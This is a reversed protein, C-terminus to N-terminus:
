TIAVVHGQYYTISTRAHTNYNFKYDMFNIIM